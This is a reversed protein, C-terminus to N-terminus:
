IARQSLVPAALAMSNYLQLDLSNARQLEEFIEAGVENKIQELRQEMSLDREQTVNLKQPQFKIEPFFPKLWAELRRLSTDFQEVVGVFPLEHLARAAREHENLRQGDIMEPVAFALRHTQFNRIARDGKLGLRWKIYGALDTEKAMRAGATDADQKREFRYVSRIRDLPHRIFIIPYITINPLKPPPLLATHSSLVVLDPHKLLYDGVAQAQWGGGMSVGEHTYWRNKFNTKLIYDLSTGANKFLHYHLIIDRNGSNIQAAM